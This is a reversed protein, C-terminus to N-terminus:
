NDSARMGSKNKYLNKYVLGHKQKHYKFSVQIMNSKFEDIHYSNPLNRRAEFGAIARSLAIAHKDELSNECLNPVRKVQNIIYEFYEAKLEVVMTTNNHNNTQELEEYKEFLDKLM